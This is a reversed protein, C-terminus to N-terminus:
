RKGRHATDPAVRLRDLLPRFQPAALVVGELERRAAAVDGLAEYCLALNARIATQHPALVLARQYAAVAQAYDGSMRWLNGLEFLARINMPDIALAKEWAARAGATDGRGFRVVGLGYHAATSGPNWRLAREFQAQAEEWRGRSALAEGQQIASDAMVSWIKPVAYVGALAGIVPIALAVWLVGRRRIRM